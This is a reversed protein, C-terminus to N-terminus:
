CVGLVCMEKRPRQLHRLLVKELYKGGTKQMHIFEVVVRDSNSWTYPPKRKVNPWISTASVVGGSFNGLRPGKCKTPKGVQLHLPASLPKLQLSQPHVKVGERLPVVSGTSPPRLASQEENVPRLASQEENVSPAAEANATPPTPPEEPLSPATAQSQPEESGVQPESSPQHPQEVPTALGADSHLGDAQGVGPGEAVGAGGPATGPVEPEQAGTNSGGSVTESVEPEGETNTLPPEMQARPHPTSSADPSTGPTQPEESTNGGVAGNNATSDDAGSDVESSEVPQQRQTPASEAQSPSPTATAPTAPTHSGSDSSASLSAKTTPPVQPSAMGGSVTGVSRPESSNM